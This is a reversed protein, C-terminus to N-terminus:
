LLFMMITKLSKNSKSKQSETWSDSGIIDLQEWLKEIRKVEEQSENERPKQNNKLTSSVYKPALMNPVQNAASVETIQQGKAIVVVKQSINRIAVSVRFSGNKCESYSPITIWAKEEELAMKVSPETFVNIRKSNGRFPAIGSIKKIEGPQIVIAEATKVYGEVEELSFEEKRSAPRNLNGREWAKGLVAIEQKTAQDLVLDIHLTGIQIPVRKSYDSDNVVVFLCPEEFDKVKSLGLNAEVYGKYKVKIGGTGEIDLINKLSKVRLGLLRAIGESVTSIQSGSDVLAKLITGNLIM